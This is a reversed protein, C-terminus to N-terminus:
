FKLTPESLESSIVLPLLANRLHVLEFEINQSKQFREKYDLLIKKEDTKLDFDQNLLKELADLIEIKKDENKKRKFIIIDEEEEVM